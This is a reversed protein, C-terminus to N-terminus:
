IQEWESNLCVVRAGCAPLRELLHRRSLLVSVDADQLMFTLREQPYGPDLPVYAGGAKLVALIAIVAELSRPLCLGVRSEPGVGLAQLAHALQNARRNLRDYTLHAEEDAVAVAEPI